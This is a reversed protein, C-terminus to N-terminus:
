KTAKLGLAGMMAPATGDGAGKERTKGEGGIRSEGAKKKKAARERRLREMYEAKLKAKMQERMRKHENKYNKLVEARGTGTAAAEAESAEHIKSRSMEARSYPSPVAGKGAAAASLSGVTKKSAGVLVDSPRTQAASVPSGRPSITTHKPSGVQQAREADARLKALKQLRSLHEQKLREKVSAYMRKHAVKYQELM